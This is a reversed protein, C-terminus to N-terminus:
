KQNVAKIHYATNCQERQQKHQKYLYERYWKPYYEAMADNIEFKARHEKRSRCLGLVLTRQRGVAYKTRNLREAIEADDYGKAFMDAVIKREEDSWDPSNNHYGTIRM